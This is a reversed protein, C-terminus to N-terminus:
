DVIHTRYSVEVRRAPDCPPIVVIHAVASWPELRIFNSPGWHFESGTVEDRVTFRADADYGLAEMDLTLTGERAGHPDLSVVTLVCDGTAPDLKSYAILQDNDVTHFRLTRLQQLAPHERRIRNLTRLWPALSQGASEAAAFDRPRLEYKESDLYEESGPAVPQWEYLEFGSYVGWSPSMTAALAARIAFMAPGGRQLSEHLIDPTNTFMNPRAEDVHALLQRCFEVLDAKTTKWTFYTYSQSFGRRALGFLRAPRTFAEALFLVDPETRKVDSILRHWFDPPKTHPNDVRFIRVGLSTWLRVVRLVESHIGEPDRDFNIPYIDQYKKPPNEAYAIHGDPLVTFWEPHDRAWPHDPACQLALDLAIAVGRDASYEVLERFDDITGLDPHVADHGGERSGIAWPSGVDGPEAVLTNNRGKRNIHGIPHVPPLYVVDFGLDAAHDIYARSTRFTGHVPRGDQDRGGTSRPFFEYWSSFQAERRDVWVRHTQGTTVLERVPDAALAEAIEDSLAESTRRRADGPGRLAAAASLLRTARDGHGATTAQEAATGLVRAGVEFENGLEDAGHGAAMKKVIGDRWTAFPDSWAEVRFSWMGPADTPLLAHVTDPETGAVMTTRTSAGGPRRVVLTAALADHGERWVVASIPLIEGVVSKAPFRGCAVLPRVDEIALRDRM